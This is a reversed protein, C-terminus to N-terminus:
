EASRANELEVVFRAGGHEGEEVLVRGRQLTVLEHVISLGIGTGAISSARDRDLRHFREFIRTREDPPVGPGRDEVVIRASGNRSDVGVLIEPDRSGYKVANDLLNLLVQGLADADFSAEVGPEIRTVLRTGRATMMPQFRQLTERVVPELPGVRPSMQLRLRGRELRSFQLVNEVLHSLHRAERDIIAISQAGEEPSRVRGLLLTEAFLRIQALPTRLEHSVSAVFEARLAQMRRERRVERIAAAMLAATLLVLGVYLPLRSPPLGGPVLEPAAEPDLSLRVVSGELVGGYADRFPAEARFEPHPVGPSRFREVGAHDLFSLFLADNSVDGSGLSPPLLSSADFAASLFPGLADLDVEFGALRAGSASPSAIEGFVLSVPKGSVLGHAVYYPRTEDRPATIRTEIWELLETTEPEGGAFRLVGTDSLVFHRLALSLAPRLREDAEADLARVAEELDSLTQVRRSLATMLPYYGEYGLRATARRVFENAALLAYDTLVGTAAARHSERARSAQWALLATAGLSGILLGLIWAARSGSDRSIM